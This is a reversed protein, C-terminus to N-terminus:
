REAIYERFSLREEGESQAAASLRAALEADQSDAEDEMLDLYHEYEEVALLVAVPQGATDVVYQVGQERLIAVFEDSKSQSM